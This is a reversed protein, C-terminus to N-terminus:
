HSPSCIAWPLSDPAMSHSYVLSYKVSHSIPDGSQAVTILSASVSHDLYCINTYAAAQDSRGCIDWAIWCTSCSLGALGGYIHHCSNEPVGALYYLHLWSNDITLCCLHPSAHWYKENNSFNTYFINFWDKIRLYSKSWPNTKSLLMHLLISSLNLLKCLHLFIPWCLMAHPSLLRFYPNSGSNQSEMSKVKLLDIFNLM